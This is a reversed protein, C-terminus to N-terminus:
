ARDLSIAMTLSLRLPHNLFSSPLLVYAIPDSCLPKLGSKAEKNYSELSGTPRTPHRDVTIRHAQAQRSELVQWM